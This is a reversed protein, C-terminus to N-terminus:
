RIDKSLIEAKEVKITKYNNKVEIKKYFIKVWKGQHGLLTERTEGKCDLVYILSPNVQLALDTFPENGVVVVQGVLENAKGTSNSAACSLLIIVLVFSLIYKSAALIKM